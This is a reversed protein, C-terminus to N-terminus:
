FRSLSRWKKRYVIRTTMMFIKSLFTIFFTMKGSKWLLYRGHHDLISRESPFFDLRRRHDLISWSSSDVTIAYDSCKKKYFNNEKKAEKKREYIFFHNLTMFLLIIKSCKCSKALPLRRRKQYNQEFPPRSPHTYHIKFANQTLNM